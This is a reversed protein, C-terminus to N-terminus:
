RRTLHYRVVDKAVKVLDMPNTIVRFNHAGHSLSDLNDTKQAWEVTAQNDALYVLNTNCGLKNLREIIPDNKEGYFQGDTLLFVLKSAKRSQSMVRETELLAYYPDTSGSADVVAVKSSAKQEASYLVKSSHNFTMVTVSGNIREIARKIIWSARCASGIDRYMSGSRDILICAEIDHSDDGIEWRDFLKNIDNVDANMARRVNLKGTPKERFWTPDADIRLRELEQAFARGVTIEYGEPERLTPTQKPLLTKTSTDATIAKQTDRVKARLSKDSKAREVATQLEDLLAEDKDTNWKGEGAKGDSDSDSKDSQGSSNKDSDFLSDENPETGEQLQEQSKGSEPRGNRLLPRHGCGNPGDVDNAFKAFESIIEQARAYDRPFALRRYENILSYVLKAQEMGYKKAYLMASQKRAEYSYYKRGALLTFSDGLLRPDDILYDGITAILFPRVSPYKTALLHEARADELMNFPQMLKNEQVWKGLETGMRPTFLLHAVEHYNLGHLSILTEENIEAIKNSNFTITKGDNWAPTHDQPDDTVQVTIDLGTLIRDTRQYVSCTSDLSNNRITLAQQRVEQTAKMEENFQSRLEDYEARYKNWAEEHSIGLSDAEKYIETYSKDQWAQEKAYQEWKDWWDENAELNRVAKPM